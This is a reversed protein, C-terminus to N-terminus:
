EAATFTLTDQGAALIYGLTEARQRLERYLEATKPHHYVFNAQDAIDAGTPFAGNAAGWDIQSVPIRNGNWFGYRTLIEIELATYENSKAPDIVTDPIAKAFLAIGRKGIVTVGPFEAALLHVFSDEKAPASPVGASCSILLIPSQKNYRGADLDFGITSPIMEALTPELVESGSDTPPEGHGIIVLPEDAPVSSFDCDGITQIRNYGKDLAYGIGNLIVFDEASNEPYLIM